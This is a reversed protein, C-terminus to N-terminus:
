ASFHELLLESIRDPQSLPMWHGGPLQEYRWQGRVFRQSDRMQRATLFDDGTSYIGLTDAQVCPMSHRM